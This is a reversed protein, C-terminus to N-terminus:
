PCSFNGATITWQPSAARGEEQSKALFRCPNRVADTSPYLEVLRWTGAYISVAPNGGYYLVNGTGVVGLQCSWGQPCSKAPTIALPDGRWHFACPETGVKDAVVGTLQAFEAETPCTSVAPVDAPAPEYAVPAAPTPTPLPTPVVVNVVPEPQPVQVNVNVVPTVYGNMLGCAATTVNTVLLVVVVLMKRFM